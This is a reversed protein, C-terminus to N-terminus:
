LNVDLYWFVYGHPRVVKAKKLFSIKIYSAMM